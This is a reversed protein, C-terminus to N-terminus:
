SHRKQEVKHIITTPINNIKEEEEIPSFLLLPALVELIYIVATLIKKSFSAYELIPINWCKNVTLTLNNKQLM